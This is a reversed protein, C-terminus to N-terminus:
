EGDGTASPGSVRTAWGLGDGRAWLPGQLGSAVTPTREAVADRDVLHLAMTEETAGRVWAFVGVQEEGGDPRSRVGVVAGPVPTEEFRMTGRACDGLIDTVCVCPDVVEVDVDRQDQRCWRVQGAVVDGLTWWRSVVNRAALDNADERVVEAPLGSLETRWVGALSSAPPAPDACALSLASAWSLARPM